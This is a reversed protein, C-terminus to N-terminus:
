PIGLYRQISHRTAGWRLEPNMIREPQAAMRLRAFRQRAISGNPTWQYHRLVNSVAETAGTRAGHQEWQIQVVGLSSRENPSRATVSAQTFPVSKPVLNSAHVRAATSGNHHLQMDTSGSVLQTKGLRSPVLQNDTHNSNRVFSRGQVRQHVYYLKMRVTSQVVSRHLIVFPTSRQARQPARGNGVKFPKSQVHENHRLTADNTPTSPQLEPQM